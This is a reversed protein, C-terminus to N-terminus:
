GLQITGIDIEAQHALTNGASGQAGPFTMPPPPPNLISCGDCTGFPLFNGGCPGHCYSLDPMPYDPDLEFRDPHCNWEDVSRFRLGVTGIAITVRWRPNGTGTTSPASVYVGKGIRVQYPGFINDYTDTSCWRLPDYYESPNFPSPPFSNFYRAMSVIEYNCGATQCGGGSTVGPLVWTAGFARPQPFVLRAEGGCGSIPNNVWRRYFERCELPRFTVSGTWKVVFSSYVGACVCPQAACCCSLVEATM